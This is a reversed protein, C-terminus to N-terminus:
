KDYIHKNVAKIMERTPEFNICDGAKRVGEGSMLENNLSINSLRNRKESKKLNVLSFIRECDANSIPVSLLARALKSLTPYRGSVHVRYWLSETNSDQSLFSDIDGSLSLSRWECDLDQQENEAIINPFKSSIDLLSQRDSGVLATPDLLSCAESLTQNNLPLRKQLQVSLEVLFQQIRRFMLSTDQEERKNASSELLKAFKVGGYIQTLPLHINPDRPDVNLVEQMPVKLVSPKIFCSLVQIYLLFCDKVVCHIMAHPSQFMINLKDTMSLVYELFQFYLHTYPNSLERYLFDSSHLRDETHALQFYLHLAKWQELIRSICASLSLWRVDHLKLIRHHQCQMFDQFDSLDKLRKSSHSFYSNCERVLQELTKPLLKTAHSVALSISHCVCKVLILSPNREQLRSVVSNQCGFMVNTTDAAFGVCNCLDLDSAKLEDYLTDFLQQASQGKVVPLSLLHAQVSQKQLDFYKVVIAMVSDTSIDTSEDIILSFHQAQHIDKLLDKKFSEALVNNVIASCKTRKSAYSKAIESDPFIKPFIESLHDMLKYSLHHEVAMAAVIIEARSIADKVNTSEKFM